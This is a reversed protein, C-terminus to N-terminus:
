DVFSWIKLSSIVEEIYNDLTKAKIFIYKIGMLDGTKSYCEVLYHGEANIIIISGEGQKIYAAAESFKNTAEELTYNIGLSHEDGYKKAVQEFNEGDEIKQKVQIMRLFVTYNIENDTAVLSVVKERALKPTIVKEVYRDRGLVYYPGMLDERDKETTLAAVTKNYEEEIEEDTIQINYRVALKQIIIKEILNERVQKIIKTKGPLALRNVLYNNRIYEETDKYDFYEIAGLRTILAPVRIYEALTRTTSNDLHFNHLMIFFSMYGIIIIVSLFVVLNHFFKAIFKIKSRIKQKETTSKAKEKTKQKDVKALGMPSIIKKDKLRRLKVEGRRADDIALKEQKKDQSAEIRKKETKILKSKKEPQERAKLEKELLKKDQKLEEPNLKKEQKVKDDRDSVASLGDVKKPKIASPKSIKTTKRKEGISELVIDRAEKLNQSDLKKIGDLNKNDDM